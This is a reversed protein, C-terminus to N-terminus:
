STVELGGPVMSHSHPASRGVQIELPSTHRDLGPHIRCSGHRRWLRSQKDAYQDDSARRCPPRCDASLILQCRVPFLGAEPFDTKVALCEGSGQFSIPGLKIEAYFNQRPREGTAGFCARLEAVRAAKTDTVRVMRWAAGGRELVLLVARRRKPFPEFGTKASSCWGDTPEHQERISRLVYIDELTAAPQDAAYDSSRRAPAYCCPRM